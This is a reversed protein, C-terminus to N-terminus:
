EVRKYGRRRAIEATRALPWPGLDTIQSRCRAAIEAPTEAPALRPPPTAPPVKAWRNMLACLEGKEIGAERLVEAARRPTWEEDLMMRYWNSANTNRLLQNALAREAPPELLDRRWLAPLERAAEKDGWGCMSSTIVQGVAYGSQATYPQQVKGSELTVDPAPARRGAEHDFWADPMVM